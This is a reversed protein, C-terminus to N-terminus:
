SVSGDQHLGEANEAAGEVGDMEAMQPERQLQGIRQRQFLHAEDGGSPRGV